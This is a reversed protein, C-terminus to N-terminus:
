DPSRAARSVAYIQGDDSEVLTWLYHHKWFDDWDTTIPAKEFEILRSTGLGMTDIVGRLTSENYSIEFGEVQWSRKIKSRPIGAVDDNAAASPTRRVVTNGPM